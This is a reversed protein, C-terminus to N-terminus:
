ARSLRKDEKEKRKSEKEEVKRAKEEAKRKVREREEETRAREKETRETGTGEEQACTPYPFVLLWSPRQWQVSHQELYLLLLVQYSLRAHSTEPALIRVLACHAAIKSSRSSFLFIATCFRFIDTCVLNPRIYHGYVKLDKNKARHNHDM